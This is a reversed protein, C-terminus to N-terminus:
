PKWNPNIPVVSPSATGKIMFLNTSQNTIGAGANVNTGTVGTFKFVQHGGKMTGVFEAEGSHVANIM